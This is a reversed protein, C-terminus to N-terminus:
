LTSILVSLHGTIFVDKSGAAIFVSDGKKINANVGDSSIVASGELVIVSVFSKESVDLNFKGDISATKIKFWECECLNSVIADDIKQYTINAKFKYPKTNTVDIAKDIHLPRSKGNELRNYDYVRYTTNCSQQVEALLIGGGIAHLTGAPIFFFDGKKVNITDVYKLLTNDYISHKFEDRTIEKNFGYILRADKECDLILWAETKGKSNENKKAYDDDPHVQVSLDYKADILKILLPFEGGTYLTGLLDDKGCMVVEDLTKGKHEGNLVENVADERCTLMWGEAINEADSEFGFDTKLRTGGWIIQKYVPKLLLPYMIEGKLFETKNLNSSLTM